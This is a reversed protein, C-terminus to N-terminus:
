ISAAARAPVWALTLGCRREINELNWRKIVKGAPNQGRNRLGSQCGSRERLYCDVCRGTFGGAGALAKAVGLSVM